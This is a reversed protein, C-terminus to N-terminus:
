VVGEASSHSQAGSNISRKLNAFVLLNVDTEGEGQESPFQPPVKPLPISPPCVPQLRDLVLSAKPTHALHPCQLLSSDLAKWLDQCQPTPLCGGMGGM